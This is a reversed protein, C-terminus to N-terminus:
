KNKGKTNPLAKLQLIKLDFGLSNIAKYLEIIAYKAINSKYNSIDTKLSRSSGAEDVFALCFIIQKDKRSKLLSKIGDAPFKQKGILKKNVSESFLGDLAQSQLSELYHFGSKKDSLIRNAAVTVQSALNRISNNFGCKVHIFYTFNDDHKLIDCAEINEPTITDFVYTNSQNIHKLNFVSEDKSLDFPENILGEIWAQELVDACGENLDKIFDPHIRYWEGDVLFYTDNNYTIEGHLHELVSGTTLLEGNEDYSTIQIDLVSLRFTVPEDLVLLNLKRVEEIILELSISDDEIDIITERDIWIKYSDATRYTEFDQHCFDLDIERNNICEEYLLNVFAENLEQVLKENAPGKKAIPTVKNLTFNSEEQLLTVYTEINRLLTDIDISKGLQFSDKATCGSGKKKIENADFGFINTLQGKKIQAQFRKYVKGFENEDSFRRDGRYFKQQGLIIGSVGREQTSKVVRDHKQFLRAIIRMGFDSSVFQKIVVSGVGGCLAFIYDQYEIFCLFSHSKNRANSLVADETLIRSLFGKWQPPKAKRYYYVKFSFGRIKKIALSDAQFTFGSETAKQIIAKTIFDSDTFKFLSTDIQYVTIPIKEKVKEKMFAYQM